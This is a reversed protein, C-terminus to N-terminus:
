SKAGAAGTLNSIFERAAEYTPFTRLFTPNRWTTHHAEVKWGPLVTPKIELSAVNDLNIANDQSADWVWTM